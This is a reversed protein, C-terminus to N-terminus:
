CHVESLNETGSPMWEMERYSRVLQSIWMKLALAPALVATAAVAVAASAAFAVQLLMAAGGSACAALVSFKLLRPRRVQLSTGQPQMSSGAQTTPQLIIERGGM